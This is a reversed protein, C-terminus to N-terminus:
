KIEGYLEEFKLLAKYERLYAGVSSIFRPAYKLSYVAMVSYRFCCVYYGLMFLGKAEAFPKKTDNRQNTQESEKSEKGNTTYYLIVSFFSLSIDFM